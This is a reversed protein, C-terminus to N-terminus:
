KVNKLTKLQGMVKTVYEQTEKIPPVGGHRDVRSPGANYAALTKKLDGDYRNLLHSLYKTGGQINEDPDLSDSVGLEAATGDMLQMLGKAGRHSVADAQGGSEIKIVSYILQPDVDHERAADQISDGYSKLIPDDTIEPKVIRFNQEAASIEPEVAEESELVAPLEEKETEVRMEDTITTKVESPKQLSTKTENPVTIGATADLHKELSKYLIEGLSSPSQGAMEKSLEQDFISQYVDKGLGSGMLGSEPITQRMAKLMHMVFFSEFEKTAQHLKAKQEALNRVANLNKVESSGTLEIVKSQLAQIDM